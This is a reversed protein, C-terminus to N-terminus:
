DVMGEDSYLTFKRLFFNSFRSLELKTGTQVYLAFRLLM